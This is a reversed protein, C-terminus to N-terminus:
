HYKKKVKVSDIDDYILHPNIQYLREKLSLEVAIIAHLISFHLKKTNKYNDLSDILFLKLSAYRDM